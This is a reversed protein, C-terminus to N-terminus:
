RLDMSSALDLEIAVRQLVKGSRAIEVETDVVSSSGLGQSLGTDFGVLQSDRRDVVVLAEASYQKDLQSTALVAMAVVLLMTGAIMWKRRRLVRVAERLDVANEDRLQPEGDVLAPLGIGSPIKINEQM